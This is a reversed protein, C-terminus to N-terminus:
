KKHFVHELFEEVKGNSLKESTFLLAKVSEELAEKLARLEARLTEIEGRLSDQSNRQLEHLIASRAFESRPVQRRQAENDLKQIDSNSLRVTITSSQSAMAGGRM